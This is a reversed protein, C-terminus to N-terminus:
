PKKLAKLAVELILAKKLSKLSKLGTLCGASDLHNLREYITQFVPYQCM